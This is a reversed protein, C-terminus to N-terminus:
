LTSNTEPRNYYYSYYIHNHLIQDYFWKKWKTTDINDKYLKLYQYVKESGGFVTGVNVLLSKNSRFEESVRKGYTYNMVNFNGRETFDICNIQDYNCEAVFNIQEESFTSFFDAFIFVDRQDSVLVREYKHRNERMFEEFAIFRRTADQGTVNTTIKIKVVKFGNADSIKFFEPIELGELLLVVKDAHPISSKALGMSLITDARIKRWYNIDKFGVASLWLDKKNHPKYKFVEHCIGSYNFNEVNIKGNSFYHPVDKSVNYKKNIKNKSLHSTTDFTLIIFFILSILSFIIICSNSYTM